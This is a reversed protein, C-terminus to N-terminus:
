DLEHAMRIAKIHAYVNQGPQLNLHELSKRTIAALLFCGIDLRVEVKCEDELSPSTGLVRAALVNLVSTQDQIPSIALSVDEARIHVRLRSGIPVDRRPVYLTQNKFKLVTLKFDNDQRDVITDLISGALSHGLHAGIEPRSFVEVLPGAAIIKGQEMLLMTDVLQLVEELSHTVYFIPIRLESQLRQFYPIIERKRKTDLAALPEDMLLLGPRTLLARALAVRQKEGGSLKNPRRDLFLGLDMIKVIQNFLVEKKEPVRRNFGYHLNGEVSLHPFLRTDQFVYGIPRENVPLFIGRDEDQWIDDDIKLFGHPARELGSLCRLFTTKGSGSPGFLVTFGEVPVELETNLMFGPFPLNFKAFLKKM